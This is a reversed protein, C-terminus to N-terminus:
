RLGDRDHGGHRDGRQRQDRRRHAQRDVARCWALRWRQVEERYRSILFIAYDTGVGFVLVVLFTDLLSSVQWGAAALFGLVGRSVVFAGGITVLPVLAALPARYILLLVVIVLLITM